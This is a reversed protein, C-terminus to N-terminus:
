TKRCLIISSSQFILLNDRTSRHQSLHAPYFCAFCSFCLLTIPHFYGYCLDGRVFARGGGSLLGDIGKTPQHQSIPTAITPSTVICVYMETLEVTQADHVDEELEATLQRQSAHVWSCISPESVARPVQGVWTIM